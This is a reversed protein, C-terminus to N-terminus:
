AAGIQYSLPFSANAQTLVFFPNAEERIIINHLGITDGRKILGNNRFIYVDKM